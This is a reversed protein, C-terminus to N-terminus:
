PHRGEACLADVVTRRVVDPDFDRVIRIVSAPDPAARVRGASGGFGTVEVAVPELTFLEPRERTLLAIPDHPIHGRGFVQIAFSRVWALFDRTNAALLAGAPGAAEIHRHDDDDLVVRRTMDFGSITTPIGSRLVIWTAVADASVNHEIHAKPGETPGFDGGMVYLHRIRGAFAPDALVAVAVNTLPGIALIDLEGPHAAALDTLLRPASRRRDYTAAGIGPVDRGEHGAWIVARGSLPEVRGAAIPVDLGVLPAVAAAMRARLDTDGYVTTIGVVDLGLHGAMMLVQLDDPDTGLDTDIVLAM